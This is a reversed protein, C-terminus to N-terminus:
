RASAFPTGRAGGLEGTVLHCPRGGSVSAEGRTGSCNTDNEDQDARKITEDLPSSARCVAIWKHLNRLTSAFVGSRWLVRNIPSVHQFFDFEDQESVVGSSSGSKLFDCTASIDFGLLSESFLM